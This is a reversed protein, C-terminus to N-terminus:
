KKGKPLGPAPPGAPMMGPVSTSEDWLPLAKQDLWHTLLNLEIGTFGAPSNRLLRVEDKGALTGETITNGLKPAMARLWKYPVPSNALPLRNASMHLLPSLQIWQTLRAETIEWDYYVVDPKSVFQQLLEPPLNTSNPSAPFLGLVLHDDKPEPAAKLTPLIIPLGTWVLRNTQSVFRGVFHNSIAANFTNTWSTVSDTVLKTANAAPVSVFTQFPVDSQAWIYAQQPAKVGLPKLWAQRAWWGAVGQLATFSIVPDQITKTPVQWAQHTLGIAQPFKLVAKTVQKAGKGEMTLSAFPLNDAAFFDGALPVVKTDVGLALWQDGELRGGDKLKEPWQYGAETREVTVWGNQIGYRYTETASYAVTQSAGTLDIKSLKGAQEGRVLVDYLNASWLGTHEVPIKVAVRWRLPSASLWVGHSEYNLIDDLLPKLRAEKAVDLKAEPFLLAPLNQSLKVVVHSRVPAAEPLALVEKLRTGEKSAELARAGLSHWRLLPQVEAVPKPKPKAPTPTSKPAASSASEATPQSCGIVTLVLLSVAVTRLCNM